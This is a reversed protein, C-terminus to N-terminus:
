TPDLEGPNPGPGGSVAIAPPRRRRASRIREPDSTTSARRFWLCRHRGPARFGQSWSAASAPPWTAPPCGFCRAKARDQFFGTGSRMADRRNYPPRAAEATAPRQGQRFGARFLEGRLAGTLDQASRSPLCPRPSRRPSRLRPALGISTIRRGRRPRSRAASPWKSSGRRRAPRVAYGDASFDLAFDAPQPIRIRLIPDGSLTELLAAQSPAGPATYDIFPNFRHAPDPNTMLNAFGAGNYSRTIQMSKQHEWTSGSTGSGRWTKAAHGRIGATVADDLTRVRQTASGWEPLIM